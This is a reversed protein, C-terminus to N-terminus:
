RLYVLRQAPLNARMGKVENPWLLQHLWRLVNHGQNLQGISIRIYFYINAASEGWDSSHYSAGFWNEGCVDYTGVDWMHVYMTHVYQLLPIM